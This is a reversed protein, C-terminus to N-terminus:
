KVLDHEVAYHIIQATTSLDLKELIRTRYTSVTKVSLSLEAAIDTVTKGAGLLRLVQFERDSLSEHLARRADLVGLRVLKETLSPTIYKEGRVIKRIAVVLEDPASQKTLYGSAGAKLARIAYQEEPYMSLILVPLSPRLGRLQKLVDIGNLDPMSIDLLAIDYQDAQRVAQLAEAGNAAEGAPLIDPTEALIERLGRRVVAHDDVLLVRIM